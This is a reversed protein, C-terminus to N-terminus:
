SLIWICFLGLWCVVTEIQQCLSPKVIGPAETEVGTCLKGIGLEPYEELAVAVRTVEEGKAEGEDGRESPNKGRFTFQTRFNGENM